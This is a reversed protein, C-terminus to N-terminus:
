GRFCNALWGQAATVTTFHRTPYPPHHQQKYYATITPDGTEAGVIALAAINLKTALTHLAEETVLVLHNLRILMPPCVAPSLKSVQAAIADATVNDVDMSAECDLWLVEGRMQAIFHQEAVVASDVVASDPDTEGKLWTIADSEEAFYRSPTARRYSFAALVRDVQDVGVVATRTSCTDEILIRKAASTIQEVMGFHVLLPRKGRASAATVAAITAHIDEAQLTVGPAWRLRLFDGDDKLTYRPMSARESTTM